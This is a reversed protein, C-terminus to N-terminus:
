YFYRVRYIRSHPLKIGEFDVFDNQVFKGKIKELINKVM